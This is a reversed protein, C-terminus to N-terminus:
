HKCRLQITTCPSFASSSVTRGLVNPGRVHGKADRSTM